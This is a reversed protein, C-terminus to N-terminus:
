RQLAALPLHLHGKWGVFTAYVGSRPISLSEAAAMKWNSLGVRAMLGWFLPENSEPKKLLVICFWRGKNFPPLSWEPDKVKVEV